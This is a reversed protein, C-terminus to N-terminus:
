PRSSCHQGGGGLVCTHVRVGLDLTGLSGAHLKWKESPWHTKNIRDDSVLFNPESLRRSMDSTVCGPYCGGWVCLM